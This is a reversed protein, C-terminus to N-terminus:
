FRGIKKMWASIAKGRDFPPANYHGYNACAKGRDKGLASSPNLLASEGAVQSHALIFRKVLTKRSIPSSFHMIGPLYSIVPPPLPFPQSNLAGGHARLRTREKTIRRRAKRERGGVEADRKMRWMRKEGKSLRAEVRDGGRKSRCMPRSRNKHIRSLLVNPAGRVVPTVALM